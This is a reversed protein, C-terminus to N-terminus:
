AVLLDQAQQCLAEIEPNNDNCELLTEFVLLARQRATACHTSEFKVLHILAATLLNQMEM